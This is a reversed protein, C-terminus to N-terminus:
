PSPRAQAWSEQQYDNRQAAQRAGGAALGRV